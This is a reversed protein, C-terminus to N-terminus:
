VVIEETGSVAAMASSLMKSFIPTGLGTVPDWGVTCNFGYKLTAGSRDIRNSGSTVDKFMAPDSYLWPNLYGMPPKGAKMRAENLLSIMAAFAPASASTGGITSVLGNSFIQYGEGMASVDPSARGELPFSGQPPLQPANRLYQAVVAKQDSFAPFMTSFGGGSGFLSAAVETKMDGGAFTTAGVSTVMPSSGPWQPYLKLPSPNVGEGGSVSGKQSVTGIVDSFLSCVGFTVHGSKASPHSTKGSITKFVRCTKNPFLTYVTAELGTALACCADEDDGDEERIIEGDFAIGDEEKKCVGPTTPPSFSWASSGEALSCCGVDEMSPLKQKVTGTAVKDQLWNDPDCERKQVYGSGADGSAFILTIGRAALKALNAEIDHQAGASCGFASLEGQWGWSISHVLPPDDSLLITNTWNKLAACFDKEDFYWFETLIGPAFGMIYDVDLAAEEGWRSGFLNPKKVTGNAGIFKYIESDSAKASPVFNQFFSALDPPGMTQDQFEAVAQRNKTSGSISVGSVGYTSALLDPTVKLGNRSGHALAGPSNRPPLPLGHLGYVAVVAAHVDAPLFFDGAVMAHQSTDSNVVSHFRTKLLSEVAPARLNVKVTEGHRSSQAGAKTLWAELTQIRSITPATIEEVEARTLYKGYM